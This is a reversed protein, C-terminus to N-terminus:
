SRPKGPSAVSHVPSNSFSPPLFSIRLNSFWKAGNKGRSAYGAAKVDWKPDIWYVSHWQDFDHQCTLLDFVKFQVLLSRFSVSCGGLYLV